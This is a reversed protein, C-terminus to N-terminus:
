DTNIFVAIRVANCKENDVFCTKFQSPKYLSEGAGSNSFFYVM